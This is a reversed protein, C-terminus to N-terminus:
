KRGSIKKIEYIVRRYPSQIGPRTLENIKVMSLTALFFRYDIDPKRDLAEIRWNNNLRISNIDALGGGKDVFYVGRYPDFIYRKGRLKVFSLPIRRSTDQTYVWSYFAEYGAYNCLTSFVDSSQDDTGYGRIIIHWVHDDIIPFGKTTKKINNYTWEFLKMVKEEDNKADKVIRKVLQQYNYHRDFFDLIKLYLPIKITQWQYNIGKRTTVNINLIFIIIVIVITGFLFKVLFKKM